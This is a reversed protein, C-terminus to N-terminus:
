EPVEEEDCYDSNGAVVNGDLYDKLCNIGGCKCILEVENSDVVSNNQKVKYDLSNTGIYTDGIV